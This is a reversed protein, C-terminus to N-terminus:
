GTHVLAMLDFFNLVRFNFIEHRVGKLQLSKHTTCYESRFTPIHMTFNTFKYGHKLYLQSPRLPSSKQIISSYLLFKSLSLSM